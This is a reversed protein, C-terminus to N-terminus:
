RSREPPERPFLFTKLRVKITYIPNLYIYFPFMRLQIEERIADCFSNTCRVECPDSGVIFIPKHSKGPLTYLYPIRVVWAIYKENHFLEAADNNQFSNM